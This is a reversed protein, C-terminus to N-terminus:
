MLIARHVVHWVSHTRLCIHGTSVHISLSTQKASPTNKFVVSPRVNQKDSVFKLFHFYQVYVLFQLSAWHTIRFRLPLASIFVGEACLCGCCERESVCLLISKYYFKIWRNQVKQAFQRERERRERVCVCLSLSLPTIFLFYFIQKRQREDKVNDPDIIRIESCV